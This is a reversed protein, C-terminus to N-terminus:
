GDMWGDVKSGVLGDMYLLCFWRQGPVSVCLTYHADPNLPVSLHFTYQASPSCTLLHLTGPSATELECSSQTQLEQIRILARFIARRLTLRHTMHHPMTVRLLYHQRQIHTVNKEM